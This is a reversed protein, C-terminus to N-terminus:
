AVVVLYLLTALYTGSFNSAAFIICLELLKTFIVRDDM